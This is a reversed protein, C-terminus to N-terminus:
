GPLFGRFILTMQRKMREELDYSGNSICWDYCIGRMCVFFLETMEEVSVNDTLEGATQAGSFLESLKRQMPRMQTFWTNEPNYLVRLGDLGTDINLRAYKTVFAMIRETWTRDALAPNETQMLADGAAYMERLVDTKTEFYRYFTGVSVDARVCIDRITVGQYGKEAMMSLAAETLRQRTRDSKKQATKKEM